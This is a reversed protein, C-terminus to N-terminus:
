GEREAIRGNQFEAIEAHPLLFVGVLYLTAAFFAVYGTV